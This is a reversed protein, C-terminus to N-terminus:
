ATAPVSSDRQGFVAEATIPRVLDAFDAALDILLDDAALVGVFEGDQIVMLRRIGHERFLGFASHMEAGADVTVVPTSMASDIRADDPVGLALVRRVLDRDTVVGVLRGDDLVALAGVGSEEMLEAAARVTRDADIAIGKRRTAEIIQM